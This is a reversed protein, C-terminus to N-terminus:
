WRYAVGLQAGTERYDDGGRSLNLGAWTSFRHGFQLQAGTGVALARRPVGGSLQEGDFTLSPARGNYEAHLSLYPQIHMPAGPMTWASLLRAGARTSVSTDGVQAVVTGNREVHAMDTRTGTVQLEPQVALTLGGLRAIDVRHALELSAQTVKATYREEALAEGQVRSNFRGHQVSADFFMTGNSWGAYVGASSGKVTGDARFGTVTSRSTSTARGASLLVGIRGRDSGFAGIDTGLQLRHSRSRLQQMGPASMRSESSDSGAWGRTTTNGTATNGATTTGSGDGSGLTDSGGYPSTRARDARRHQLLQGLAFQNAQYVGTEPRLVPEPRTPPDIIIDPLVPLTVDGGGGPTGPEITIEDEVPLTVIPQVPLTVDCLSPNSECPDPEGPLQSRLYWHGDDGKFLAYEYLGGVARGVLDFHANSDGGVSILRIGNVTQAGQGGANNVRVNAHGEANGTIVLQDTASHDDGLLTNFVLTGGTGNFTGVTLTNFPSEGRSLYVTASTDLNLLDTSSDGTMLWISDTTLTTSSVDLLRGRLLSHRELSVDLQGNATSRDFVLDGDLVVNDMFFNVATQGTTPAGDLAGLRLLERDQGSLSAGESIRIIYRANIDQRPAVWLAPGRRSIVHSDHVHLFVPTSSSGGASLLVGINDADIISTDRLTVNGQSHRIGIGSNFADLHPNDVVRITSGSLKVGAGAAMTTFIGVTPIVAFDPFNNGITIYSDNLSVVSDDYLQIGGNFIQAGTAELSASHRLTISYAHNSAVRAVSANHLVVRSAQADIAQTHGGSSVRLYAGASLNWREAPDDATIEEHGGVLDRAMVAQPSLLPLALLVACTLPRLSPHYHSGAPLTM